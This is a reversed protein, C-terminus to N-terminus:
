PLRKGQEACIAEIYKEAEEMRVRMTGYVTPDYTTAWTGIAVKRFPAVRELRVLDVNSMWDEQSVINTRARHQEQHGYAQRRLRDRELTLGHPDTRALLARQ